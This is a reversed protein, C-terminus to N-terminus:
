LELTARGLGGREGRRLIAPGNMDITDIAAQFQEAGLQVTDRIKVAMLKLLPERDSESIISFQELFKDMVDSSQMLILRDMVTIHNSKELVIGIARKTMASKLRARRLFVLAEDSLGGELQPLTARYLSRLSSLSVRLYELESAREARKRARDYWLTGGIAFFAGSVGGIFGLVADPPGGLLILFAAGAALGGAAVGAILCEVIADRDM